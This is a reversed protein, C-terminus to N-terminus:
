TTSLNTRNLKLLLHDIAKIPECYTPDVRKRTIPTDLPEIICQELPGSFFVIAQRSINPKNNVKYGLKDFLCEKSM